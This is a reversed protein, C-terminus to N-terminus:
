SEEHLSNLESNILRHVEDVTLQLEQFQTSVIEFTVDKFCAIFHRYGSFLADTHRPHLRNAVMIEQIWPSNQVEFLGYFGLGYQFLPHGGRAEDNPSGYKFIRRDFKLVDVLNDNKELLLYVESGTAIVFNEYMFRYSKRLPIEIVKAQKTTM